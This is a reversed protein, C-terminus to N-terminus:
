VCEDKKSEKREQGKWKIIKSNSKTTIQNTRGSEVNGTISTNSPKHSEGTQVKSDGTKGTSVRPPSGLTDGDRGAVRKKTSAGLGYICNM